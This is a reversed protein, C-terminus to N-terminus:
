LVLLGDKLSKTVAETRSAAGLKALISSVHFKVTHESIHLRDAINKNALGQAMCALVEAERASLAELVPEDERDVNNATPLLLALNETGLTTLGVAAAELTAFVEGPTADRPLVGRIGANLARLLENRTIDDALLVLPPSGVDGNRSLLSAIRDRSSVEALVVDPPDGSSRRVPEFRRDDRLMAELGARAIESAAAVLVRIV